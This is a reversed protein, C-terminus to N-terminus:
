KFVVGNPNYKLSRRNHPSSEEQIIEDYGTELEDNQQVINNYTIITSRRKSLESLYRQYHNIKNDILKMQSKYM